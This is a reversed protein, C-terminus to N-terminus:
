SRSTMIVDNHEAPLGTFTQNWLKQSVQLGDNLDLGEELTRNYAMALYIVSDYYAGVFLNVKSAFRLFTHIM